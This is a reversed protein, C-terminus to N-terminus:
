SVGASRFMTMSGLGNGLRSWPLIRDVLRVTQLLRTMSSGLCMTQTALILQKQCERITAYRTVTFPVLSRLLFGSITGYEAPITGSPLAPKLSGLLLPAVPGAM